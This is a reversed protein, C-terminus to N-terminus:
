PARLYTHLIFVTRLRPLEVTIAECSALLPSPPVCVGIKRFLKKEPM